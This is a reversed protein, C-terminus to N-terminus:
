CRDFGSGQIGHKLNDFSGISDYGHVVGQREKNFGCLMNFAYFPMFRRGCLTNGFLQALSEADPSRGQHESEYIKVKIILNMRLTEIDAVMGSSTICCIQTLETTKSYEGSFILYGESIRKDSCDFL